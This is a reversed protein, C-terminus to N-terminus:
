FLRMVNSGIRIPLVTIRRVLDDVDDDPVETYSIFFSVDGWKNRDVEAMIADGVAILAVLTIVSRSYM